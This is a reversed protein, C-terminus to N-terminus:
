RTIAWWELSDATSVLATAGDPSIAMGSPPQADPRRLETVGGSWPDFAVGDGSLMMGSPSLLHDQPCPSLTATPLHLLHHRGGGQIYVHESTLVILRLVSPAGRVPELTLLTQPGQATFWRVASPGWAGDQGETVAGLWTEGGPLLAATTECPESVEVVAERLTEGTDARETWTRWRGDQVVSRLLIVPDTAGPGVWWHRVARQDDRAIVSLTRLDWLTWAADSGTILVRGGPALEGMARRPAPSLEGVPALSSADFVFIRRNMEIVLRDTEADFVCVWGDCAGELLPTVEPSRRDMVVLRDPADDQRLLVAARDAGLTAAGSIWVGSPIPQAGTFVAKLPQASHM